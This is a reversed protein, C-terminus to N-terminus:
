HICTSLVMYETKEINPELGVDKSTDIVAEINKKITNRNSGLVNIDDAYTLLQYTRNLKLGM